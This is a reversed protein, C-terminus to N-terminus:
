DIVVPLELYTEYIYDRHELLSPAVAAAITDDISGYSQRLFDPMPCREDPLPSVLAAFTAWYIDLASLKDGIMYPGNGAERQIRLRESLLSLVEAVKDSAKLATEESYGYQAAMLQVPELAPNPGQKAIDMMPKFLALRRNWAYGEAGALEHIMGFMLVRDNADEPILPPNPVRNEAFHILDLWAHLPKDDEDIIQPANRIGTWAVLEPNDTGAEQRVRIFPIKKVHLMGKAAESWPGPAGATLVLRVGGQARAEEVSAFSSM